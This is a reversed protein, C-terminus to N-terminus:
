ESGWRPAPHVPDPTEHLRFVGEAVRQSGVCVQPPFHAAFAPWVRARLTSKPITSRTVRLRLWGM